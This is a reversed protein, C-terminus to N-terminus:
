EARYSIVGRPDLMKLEGPVNVPSSSRHGYNRLTHFFEAPHERSTLGHSTDEAGNPTKGLAIQRHQHPALGPAALFEQGAGNM